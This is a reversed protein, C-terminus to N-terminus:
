DTHTTDLKLQRQSSQNNVRHIFYGLLQTVSLESCEKEGYDKIHHLLNEVREQMRAVLNAFLKRRKKVPESPVSSPQDKEMQVAIGSAGQLIYANGKKKSKLRQYHSWAAKFFGKIEM